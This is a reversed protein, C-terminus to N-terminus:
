ACKIRAAKMEALSTPTHVHRDVLMEWELYAVPAPSPLLHRPPEPINHRGSKM